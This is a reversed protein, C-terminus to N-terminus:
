FSSTVVVLTLSYFSKFQLFHSPFNSRMKAPKIVVKHQLFLGCQPHASGDLGLSSRAVAVVTVM